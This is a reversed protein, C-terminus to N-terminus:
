HEKHRVHIQTIVWEDPKREVIEFTIATKPAIGSLLSANALAFDMTMGPWGLSKIAEHTISVTGDANIADLIGQAQHSVTKRSQTEPKMEAKEPKAAPKVEVASPMDRESLGNLAAKLNSEADILFLAQTVVQEGEALGDLVEAYDANRQGLRVNRPAFHGPATQVLAVQRTGSDIIASVPVSLRAVDNGEELTVRAFLAPKLLGDSNALEIRVTVTRTAPNLTPSIFSLKGSFRRDPYATLTVDAHQGLAVQGIDQEAIDAVVWVSSLDAIQFLNEGTMFRMGQVAKKELVIGAVPSTFNRPASAAMGWNKLRSLSAQALQAMSNKAEGASMAAESQKVLDYERQASLLEPSYVEFLTQGKSVTQGVSNVYLKDVWGEFKPAISYIRREDIEVRGTLQLTQHLSRLSVAETRVGLKQVKGPSLVVDGQGADGEYVAVYDMGMADKKPVPSTDPLGMPNRYYLIKRPAAEQMRVGSEQSRVGADQSRHSGLWYGAVSFVVAVFLAIVNIKKM